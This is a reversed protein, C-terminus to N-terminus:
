GPYSYRSEIEEVDEDNGEEKGGEIKMKIKDFGSGMEPFFWFLSFRVAPASDQFWFIKPWMRPKDSHGEAFWKAESFRFKLTYLIM